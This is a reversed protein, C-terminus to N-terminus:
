IMIPDGSSDIQRDDDEPHEQANFSGIPVVAPFAPQLLVLVVPLEDIIKAGILLHEEKSITYGPPIVFSRFCTKM